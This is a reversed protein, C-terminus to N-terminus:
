GGGEGPEAGGTPPLAVPAGAVPAPPAKPKPAPGGGQSMQRVEAASSQAKRELADLVQDRLAPDLADLVQDMARDSRTLAWAEIAKVVMPSLANLSEPSFAGNEKKRFTDVERRLKDNESRLEQERLASAAIQAQLTVYVGEWAAGLERPLNVNPIQTASRVPDGVICEAALEEIQRGADDTTRKVVFRYRGPVRGIEAPSIEVVTGDQQELLLEAEVGDEESLTQVISAVRDRFASPSLPRSVQRIAAPNWNQM